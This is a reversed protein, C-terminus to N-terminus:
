QSLPIEIIFESGQGLTSNLKIKGNHREILAKAMSLGIGYGAVSQTEPKALRVFKDFIIGQDAAKIGIGQDRLSIQWSKAKLESTLMVKGEPGSYKIANDLLIELSGWLHEVSLMVEGKPKGAIALERNHIRAMELAKQTLMEWVAELSKRELELKASRETVASFNLMKNLREELYKSQSVITAGHKQADTIQKIRGGQLTEGVLKINTLPTKLEHSINTIFDTKLQDLRQSKRHTRFVYFLAVLFVGLVGHLLWQNRQHVKAAIVQSDQGWFGIEVTYGELYPLSQNAPLSHEMKGKALLPENYVLQNRENRIRLNLYSKQIGKYDSVKHFQGNFYAPLINDKLGNRSLLFCWFFDLKDEKFRPICVFRQSTSFATGLQSFILTSDLTNTWYNPAREDWYDYRDAINNSILDAFAQNQFFPELQEERPYSSLIWKNTAEDPRLMLVKDVLGSYVAEKDKPHLQKAFRKVRQVYLANIEVASSQGIERLKYHLASALQTKFQPLQNLMLTYLGLGLVALIALAIYVPSVPRM